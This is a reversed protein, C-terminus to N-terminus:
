FLLRTVEVQRQKQGAVSARNIWYVSTDRAEGEAEGMINLITAQRQKNSCAVKGGMGLVKWLASSAKLELVVAENTKSDGTITTVM